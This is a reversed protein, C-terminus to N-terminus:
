ANSAFSQSISRLEFRYQVNNILSTTITYSRAAGGGPVTTWDRSSAGHLQEGVNPHLPIPVRNAYQREDIYGPDVAPHSDRGSVTASLNGPPIIPPAVPGIRNNALKTVDAGSINAYTVRLNIYYGLDDVTLTYSNSDTSVNAVHNGAQDEWSWQYSLSPNAPLDHYTM